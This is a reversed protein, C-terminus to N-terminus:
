SWCSISAKMRMFFLRLFFFYIGGTVEWEGSRPTAKTMQMKITPMNADMKGSLGDWFHGNVLYEGGPTIRVRGVTGGNEVVDGPHAQAPPNMLVEVEGRVPYFVVQKWSTVVPDIM